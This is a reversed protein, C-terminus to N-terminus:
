YLRFHVDITVGQHARGTADVFEFPAREIECASHTCRRDVQYALSLMVIGSESLPALEAPSSARDQNADRWLFLDRYAPDAADIRRDGNTDLEALAQFGNAARGGAALETMSGFLERGDDISENGNKDLVLWPTKPSVWDHGFSAAAGTLDFSGSARTFEVPAGDFSLVLPTSCGFPDWQWTGDDGLICGLTLGAFMPEPLNCSATDGPRCSGIAACEGYIRQHEGSADYECVRAGEAGSQTECTEVDGLQECPEPEASVAPQGINSAPEAEAACGGALVFGCLALPSAFRIADITMRLIEM